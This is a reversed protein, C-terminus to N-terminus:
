GRDGLRRTPSEPTPSVWSRGRERGESTVQAQSRLLELQQSLLEIATRAHVRHGPRGEGGRDRPPWLDTGEWGPFVQVLDDVPMRSALRELADPADSPAVARMFRYPDALYGERSRVPDHQSLPADRPTPVTARSLRVVVGIGFDANITFWPMERALCVDRFAAYSEGCWSGPQFAPDMLERPPLCDHVLMVGGARLLALGAHVGAVSDEYTHHPDAIVLDITGALGRLEPLDQAPAVAETGPSGGDLKVSMFFRPLRLDLARLAPNGTTTATLAVVRSRRPQAMMANAFEGLGSHAM